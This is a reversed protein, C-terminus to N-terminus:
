DATNLVVIKSNDEPLDTRKFKFSGIPEETKSGMEKLFDHLTGLELKSGDTHYSVPIVVRPEIQEIVEKAKKAALLNNGGVPIFLVDVEGVKELQEPTLKTGQAGLHCLKISKFHILTINNELQEANDKTNHFSHILRFHVGKTEYEGPWSFIKPDGTIAEVNNYASGNHSVTVVDAKLPPLKLGIEEKFPDMLVTVGAEEIRVCAHGYFKIEM